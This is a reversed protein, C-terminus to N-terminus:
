RCRDEGKCLPIPAGPAPPAAYALTLTVQRGGRAIALDIRDAPVAGSAILRAAVAHCRAVALLMGSANKQPRDAEASEWEGTITMRVRPDRMGNLAWEAAARTDPLAASGPAFGSVRASAVALPGPTRTGGFGAQMAAAVRAPSRMNAQIFVLFGTILLALDALTTLWIPRGNM